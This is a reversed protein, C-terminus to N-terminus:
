NGVVKIILIHASRNLSEKDNLAPLIGRGSRAETSLDVWLHTDSSVLVLRPTSGLSATRRLLPLLSLSLQATALHNVQLRFLVQWDSVAAWPFHSQGYQQEWGDPTPNYEWTLM